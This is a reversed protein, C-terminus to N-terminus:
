KRRFIMMGLAGLGLLAFTSPEPVVAAVLNLPNDSVWGTLNKAVGPPTGAGGTPNTFSGTLGVKADNAMAEAMSAWSGTWGQVALSADAGLAVGPLAKSAADYFKGAQALTTTFVSPWATLSGNPTGAPGYLLQVTIQTGVPATVGDIQVLGTAGVFNNFSVTGQAYISTALGLTALTLLIKKM